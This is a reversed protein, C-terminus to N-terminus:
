REVMRALVPACSACVQRVRVCSLLPPLGLLVFRVVARTLDSELLRSVILLVDQELRMVYTLGM